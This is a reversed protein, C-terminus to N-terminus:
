RVTDQKAASTTGLLAPTKTIIADVALIIVNKKQKFISYLLTCNGNQVVAQM